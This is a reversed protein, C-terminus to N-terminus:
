RDLKPVPAAARAAGSWVGLRKGWFESVEYRVTLTRVTKDDARTDFINEGLQKSIPALLAPDVKAKEGKRLTVPLLAALPPVILDGKHRVEAALALTAVPMASVIWKERGTKLDRHVKGIEDGDLVDYSVDLGATVVTVPEDGDNRLYATVGRAGSRPLTQGGTSGVEVHLSVPQAAAVEWALPSLHLAVGVLLVICKM